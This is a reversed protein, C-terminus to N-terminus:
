SSRQNYYWEIIREALQPIETIRSFRFVPIGMREAEDLEIRMGRSIIGRYSFAILIDRRGLIVKDIELIEFELASGRAYAESVYEDNDAPVYLDLAPCANRLMKGVLSALDNNIVMDQPTADAGKEGRIPHSLYATIKINNTRM